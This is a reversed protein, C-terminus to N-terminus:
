EGLYTGYFNYKFNDNEWLITYTEDLRLDNVKLGQGKIYEKCAKIKSTFKLQKFTWTNM